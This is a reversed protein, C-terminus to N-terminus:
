KGPLLVAVGEHGSEHVCPITQSHKATTLMNAEASEM